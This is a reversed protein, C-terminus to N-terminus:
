WNNYYVYEHSLVDNCTHCNSGNLTLSVYVVEHIHSCICNYIAVFGTVYIAVFVTIYIAVFIAVYVYISIFYLPNAIRSDRKTKRLWTM